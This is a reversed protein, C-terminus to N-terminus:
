RVYYDCSSLCAAWCDMGCTAACDGDCSGSCSKGCGSELDDDKECSTLLTPGLVMIGLFPLVSKATKKFFERRSQLEENENKKEM